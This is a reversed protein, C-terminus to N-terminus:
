RTLLYGTVEFKRSERSELHSSLETLLDSIAAKIVYSDRVRYDLAAHGTQTLGMSQAWLRFRESELQVTRKSAAGTAEVGIWPTEILVKFAQFAQLGLSKLEGYGLHDAM